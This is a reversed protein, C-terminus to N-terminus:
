FAAPLMFLLVNRILIGEWIKKIKLVYPAPWKWGLNRCSLLALITHEHYLHSSGTESSLNHQNEPMLFFVVILLPM